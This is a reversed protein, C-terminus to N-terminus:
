AVPLLARPTHYASADPSASGAPATSAKERRRPKKDGKNRFPRIASIAPTISYTETLSNIGCPNEAERCPPAAAPRHTPIKTMLM